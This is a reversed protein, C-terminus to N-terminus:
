FKGTLTQLSAVAVRYRVQGDGLANQAQTLTNQSDVVELVTAEGAQYRLTTLRLSEAALDASQRLSELESRSTQAEGFFDKLDAAMKRQAFSLEVKAQNRELQASKVKARTAGWNWIPIDLTAVASYGLNRVPRPPFVTQDLGNVAYQNADIGYFYDVSLSPLFGNWAVAVEQNAVKMAALAAQLQPNAKGALTEVESFSPLAGLNELDDVTSYNENFNSFILVALDLRARDMALQADQLARQQQQFQLQAKITDSHAVEGGRELKQTVDFFNQAEAAARQAIAFKRQAVITGYYAQTVAVVLGRTAIEAQAKALAEQARARRYEALAQWSLAEHANGQSIYEHVGNNAIFRGSATGNGETYLFSSGYSANPLLAARGQVTNARAVGYQTLANRYQPENKQARTLADQLTITVPAATSSPAPQQAHATTFVCILISFIAFATLVPFKTFASRQNLNM